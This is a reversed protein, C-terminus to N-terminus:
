VLFYSFHGVLDVYINRYIPDTIYQQLIDRLKSDNKPITKYAFQECVFLIRILYANIITV